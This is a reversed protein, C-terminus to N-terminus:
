NVIDKSLSIASNYYKKPFKAEVREMLGIGDIIEVGTAKAEQKGQTTYYSTTICVAETIESNVTKLSHLRQIPTGGVGGQWRKCQFISKTGKPNTAIIDVGRDGAAGIRVVNKYGYKGLLYTIFAEFEYPDMAYIDISGGNNFPNYKKAVYKGHQLDCYNSIINVIQSNYKSNPNTLLDFLEVDTGDCIKNGLEFYLDDLVFSGNKKLLQNIYVPIYDSLKVFLENHDELGVYLKDPDIYIMANVCLFYRKIVDDIKKYDDPTCVYNFDERLANAVYSYCKTTNIPEVKIKSYIKKQLYYDINTDGIYWYSDKQTLKALIVLYQTMVTNAFAAQKRITPDKSSIAIRNVFEFGNKRAYNIFKTLATFYSKQGLKITLFVLGDKKLIKYFVGFMSDIDHFYNEMNKEKRSPADTVVIEASLMEKNLTFENDYFKYLWDRFYQSKELYPVQDTYPPDTYIVDFKEKYRPDLLEKRYDQRILILSEGLYINEINNINEKYKRIAEIKKSFVDWVNSEQASNILVHYLNDTGSGYMAIKSLALSSVLAIEILDREECAPLQLIADQILLLAYKSRNTFNTDYRNAGTSETINIRSNTIFCHNPFRSTNLTDTKKILAEDNKDFAKGRSGCGPCRGELFKITEGNEIERHKKPNYYEKTAPDFFLKSIHLTKGCRPCTTEYLSLVQDRVNNEVITFLSLYKKLDIKKLLNSVVFYTYNDLEIGLVNKGCRRAAVLFNGSGAFPDVFSSYKQPLWAIVSSAFSISKRGQFTFVNAVYKPDTTEESPISEFLSKVFDATEKSARNDM